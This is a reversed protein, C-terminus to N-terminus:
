PPDGPSSRPRCSRGRARCPSARALQFCSLRDFRVRAPRARLRALSSRSSGLIVPVPTLTARVHTVSALFRPLTELGRAPAVSSSRAVTPSRLRRVPELSRADCRAGGDAETRALPKRSHVDSAARGTSSAGSCALRWRTGTRSSAPSTPKPSSFQVWPGGRIGTLSRRTSSSVASTPWTESCRRVSFSFEGSARRRVLSALVGPHSVGGRTAWASLRRLRARKCPTSRVDRSPAPADSGHWSSLRVFGPCHVAHTPEDSGASCSSREDSRRRAPRDKDCM